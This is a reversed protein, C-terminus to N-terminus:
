PAPKYYAASALSNDWLAMLLYCAPQCPPTFCGKAQLSSLFLLIFHGSVGSPWYRVYTCYLKVEELSIIYEYISCPFLPLNSKYLVPCAGGVAISTRPVGRGWVVIITNEKSRIIFFFLIIFESDNESQAASLDDWVGLCSEFPSLVCVCVCVREREHSVIHLHSLYFTCSM